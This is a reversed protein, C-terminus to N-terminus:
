EPLSLLNAALPLVARLATDTREVAELLRGDLLHQRQLVAAPQDRVGLDSGLRGPQLRLRPRAPRSGHQAVCRQLLDPDHPPLRLHRLPRVGGARDAGSGRGPRRAPGDAPRWSEEPVRYDKANTGGEDRYTCSLPRPSGCSDGVAMS